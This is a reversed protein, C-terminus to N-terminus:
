GCDLVGQCGSWDRKTKGACDFTRPSKGGIAAVYFLTSFRSMGPPKEGGPMRIKPVQILVCSRSGLCPSAFTSPPRKERPLLPRAVVCAHTTMSRLLLESHGGTRERSSRPKTKDAM